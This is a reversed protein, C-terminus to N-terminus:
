YDKKFFNVPPLFLNTIGAKLALNCVHERVFPYIIAPANIQKFTDEALTPEGIKEFVGQATVQAEYVKIQGNEQEGTLNVALDVTFMPNISEEAITTDSVKREFNTKHIIEKTFDISYERTFSTRLILIQVIKYQGTIDSM